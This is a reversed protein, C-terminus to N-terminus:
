FPSLIKTPNTITKIVKKPAQQPKIIPIQTQIQTPISSPLATPIITPIYAPIIIKPIKNNTNSIIETGTNGTNITNKATDQKNLFLIGGAICAGIGLSYLLFKKM